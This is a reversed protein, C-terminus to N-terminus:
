PRGAKPTPESAKGANVRDRTGQRQRAREADPQEAALEAVRLRATQPVLRGVDGLGLFRDFVTRKKRMQHPQYRTMDDPTVDRELTLAGAAAAAEVLEQGARTRVVLANTGPDTESDVRNPSGGDWTDSAAIDAAEGIGDPCVKCRFPLQWASEDEGWFDLYHMERVDTDTEIRTPGPCGRGRYRLRSVRDPDLGNDSLFAAMAQPPMYGGCVPTLWYKVYQDVRADLLAYNRLAAIDCPKGVFAFAQERALVADIDILPASPGYRSGAADLVEADTFSLHREGFTPHTESAKVHLVFDVRGDNLLFQALATLVGGTSGEFRVRDDAAWGRVMRRWPGWVPDIRTDPLVERAPLGEIRTGPCVEFIRAVTATDLTGTIVPREYGNEVPVVRVRDPGAVAQCLGCGACLGQESIANLRDRPTM